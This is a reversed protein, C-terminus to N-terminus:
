KPQNFTKPQQKEERKEKFNDQVGPLRKAPMREPPEKPARLPHTDGKLSATVMM